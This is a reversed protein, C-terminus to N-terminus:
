LCTNPWNDHQVQKLMKKPQMSGSIGWLTSAEGFRRLEPHCNSAQM